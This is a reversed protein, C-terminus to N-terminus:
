EVVAVIRGIGVLRGAHLAVIQLSREREVVFVESQVELHHEVAVEVELVPLQLADSIDCRIGKHALEVAASM